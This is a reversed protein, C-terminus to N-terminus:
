DFDLWFNLITSQKKNIYKEIYKDVIYNLNWNINIRKIQMKIDNFNIVAM